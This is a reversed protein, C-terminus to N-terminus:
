VCVCVGGSGGGGTGCHSHLVIIEIQVVTPNYSDDEDRDIENLIHPLTNCFRFKQALVFGLTKWRDNNILLSLQCHAIALPHTNTVRYIHIHLRDYHLRHWDLRIESKM